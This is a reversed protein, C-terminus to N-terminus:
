PGQWPGRHGLSLQRGQLRPQNRLCHGSLTGQGAPGHLPCGTGWGGGGEKPGERGVSTTLLAVARPGLSKPNESFPKFKGLNPGEGSAWWSLLPDQGVIRSLAMPCSPGRHIQPRSRGILPLWKCGPFGFASCLAAPDLAAGDAPPGSPAGHAGGDGGPEMVELATIILM